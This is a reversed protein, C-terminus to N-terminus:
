FGLKILELDFHIDQLCKSFLLYLCNSPLGRLQLNNMNFTKQVGSDDPDEM